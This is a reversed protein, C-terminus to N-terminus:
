SGSISAVELLVRVVGLQGAGAGLHLPRDGECNAAELEAGAAVLLRTVECDGALAACHLPTNGNGDEQLGAGQELLFKVMQRRRRLVARHLVTEQRRGMQDPPSCDGLAPGVKKHIVEHDESWAEVLRRFDNFHCFTLELWDAM